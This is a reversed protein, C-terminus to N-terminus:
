ACTCCVYVTNGYSMGNYTELLKSLDMIDQGSFNPLEGSLCGDGKGKTGKEKYPGLGKVPRWDDQADDPNAIPAFGRLRMLDGRTIKGFKSQWKHQLTKLDDPLIEDLTEFQDPREQAM